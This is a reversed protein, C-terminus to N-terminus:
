AGLFGLRLEELRGGIRPEELQFFLKSGREIAPLKGGDFKM